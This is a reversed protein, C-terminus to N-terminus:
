DGAGYGRQLALVRIVNHVIVVIAYILTAWRGKCAWRCWTTPVIAHYNPQSRTRAYQCESVDVDVGEGETSDSPIM